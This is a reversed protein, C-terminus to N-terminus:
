EAVRLLGQSELVRVYDQVLGAIRTGDAGAYRTCLAEVIERVTRGDSLEWILAGTDNLRFFEATETHCLMPIGDVRDSIVAEHHRLLREGGANTTTM